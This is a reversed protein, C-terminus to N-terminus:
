GRALIAHIEEAYSQSESSGDTVIEIDGASAVGLGLEVARDIQEQAFIARDMIEPTTGLQKLVALGVADIAIRDTGALFVDARERTGEMPGGEVFAEMGDLVILDPTYGANVEAIMKRMDPSNHLHTMYATNEKPIIGVALKLAMTFIGGFQHTKLCPTCVVCEAERLARPVLFGDEWHSDPVDVRVLQDAGLEDFNIIDVGLEDALAFVGLEEMVEATNPPGSREGITIKEAGMERLYIILERLTDIHTCGPYRDATNFNPKLMVEKGRVPNLDLAEISQRIGDVRSEARVLAVTTMNESDSTHVIDGGRFVTEGM